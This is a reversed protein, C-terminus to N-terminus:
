REQKKEKREGVEERKEVEWKMEERERSQSMIGASSRDEAPEGQEVGVWPSCNGRSQHMFLGESGPGLFLQSPTDIYCPFLAQSGALSVLNM